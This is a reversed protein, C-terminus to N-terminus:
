RHKKKTKVCKGHSRHHGPKCSSKKHVQTPTPRPTATPTATSTATPTPTPTITPTSTPEPPLQGTLARQLTNSGDGLYGFHAVNGDSFSSGYGDLANLAVSQQVTDGVALLHTIFGGTLEDQQKDAKADWSLLTSVGQQQFAKWLVPAALLECGNLFLLSSVPFHGVHQTFFTSTVAYYLALNIDGAVTAQLLSHDAFLTAYEGVPPGSASKQGTVVIADGAASLVGAHTEDYVVAYSPLTKMVDVTVQENRMIDVQFGAQRLSAVEEDGANPGLQLEDAFPELVLARAAPANTPAHTSNFSLFAPQISSPSRRDAPLIVLQGGDRFLISITASGPLRSVSAVASQRQLWRFTGGPDRAAQRTAVFAVQRDRSSLVTSSRSVHHPLSHLIPLLWLGAALLLRSVTIM